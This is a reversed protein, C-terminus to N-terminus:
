SGQGVGPHLEFQGEFWVYPTGLAGNIVRRVEYVWTVVASLGVDSPTLDAATLSITAIGGAGNTHSGATSVKHLIQTAAGLSPRVTFHIDDAAISVPMGNADTFAFEATWAAGRKVAHDYRVPLASIRM